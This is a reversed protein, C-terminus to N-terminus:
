THIARWSPKPLLLIGMGVLYASYALVETLSPNANYGFLATLVQGLFTAEPLWHSTDWLPEMLAPIWGIENLEHVGHAVLGAAFLLLLLSSVRFFRRIDLRYTTAFLVWGLLAAVGLGSLGGSWTPLAGAAFRAALLYIALEIGERGVATFAAGFLGWAGRRLTEFQVSRELEQRIAAGQQHFWFIMWTLLGAALIMMIGEFAAEAPGELEMGLANLGWGVLLSTGAAAGVGLWVSRKLSQLQFKELAGLLIGIILAAELGERLALLFAALM